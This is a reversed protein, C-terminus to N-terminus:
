HFHYAVGLSLVGPSLGNPPFGGWRQFEYDARINTSPSLHYDAGGGTAWINYALNAIPGASPNSPAPPFNFVGRGVMLKTYPAFRGFHLVYRPGIEYTREYIGKPSDPNSLQHFEAEVGLHHRFDFSTYFGFGKLTSAGQYDSNGLTFAAGAQLDVIRSATPSAQAYLPSADTMVLGSVLLLCGCLRMSRDQLLAVSGLGNSKLMGRCAAALISLWQQITIELRQWNANEIAM